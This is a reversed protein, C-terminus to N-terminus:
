NEKRMAALCTLGIGFLLFTSPEPVPMAILQSQQPQPSTSFTQINLVQVNSLFSPNYGTTSYGLISTVYHTLTNGTDIEDEFFWIANQTLEAFADKDGSGFASYLSSYSFIYENMLWKTADSIFDKNDTVGIDDRDFGGNEAFGGVSAINYSGNRTFPEFKELCFSIFSYDRQNHTMVFEGGSGSQNEGFTLKVTDGAKPLAHALSGHFLLAAVIVIIFRM